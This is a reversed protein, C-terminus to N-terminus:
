SLSFFFFLTQLLNENPTGRGERKSAKSDRMARKVGEKKVSMDRERVTTAVSGPQDVVTDWPMVDLLVRRAPAARIRRLNRAEVIPAAFGVADDNLGGAAESAAPRATALSLIAVIAFLAFFFGRIREM